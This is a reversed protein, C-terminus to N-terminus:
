KFFTVFPVNLWGTSMETKVFSCTPLETIIILILWMPKLGLLFPQVSKLIKQSRFRLSKKIVREM